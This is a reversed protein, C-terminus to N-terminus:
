VSVKRLRIRLEGLVKKQILEGYPMDYVTFVFKSHNITLRVILAEM